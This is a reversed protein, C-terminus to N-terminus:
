SSRYNFKHPRQTSKKRPSSRDPRIPLLERAILFDANRHLMEGCLKLYKCCIHIANTINPRCAYRSKCTRKTVLNAVARSYNYLILRAWLEMEIADVKKSHFDLLGVSYKLHRFSTEIGWRMHYLEKLSNRDFTDSPLNTLLCEYTGNGLRVRVVRFAMHYEKVTENLFYPTATPHVRHYAEPNTKHESRIQNVFIRDYIFDFEEEDPRPIGKLIGGTNFDKARILFFQDKSAIHAMLPYGEYGRDFIFVSGSPFSHEEFTHHFANREDHGRRPQIYAAAYQDDMLNYVANLHLQHYCKQDKRHFYSYTKNEKELPILIDSGDVAFIHFGHYQRSPFEGAFAHFLHRFADTKLKSRQQVFASSTPTDASYGFFKQLESTISGREMSLFSLITNQFSLKSNRSFDRFPRKVFDEKHQEMQEIHKLLLNKVSLSINM